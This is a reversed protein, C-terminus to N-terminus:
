SWGKGGSVGTREPGRPTGAETSRMPGATRVRSELHVQRGLYAPGLGAGARNYLHVPDTHLLGLTSLVAGWYGSNVERPNWLVWRGWWGDDVGMHLVALGRSWAWSGALM